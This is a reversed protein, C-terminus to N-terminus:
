IHSTLAGLELVFSWFSAHIKRCRGHHHGFKACHIRAKLHGDWLMVSCGTMGMLVLVVHSWSEEPQNLTQSAREGSASLFNQLFHPHLTLVLSFHQLKQINM